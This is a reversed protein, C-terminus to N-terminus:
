HAYNLMFPKLRDLSLAWPMSFDDLCHQLWRLFRFSIQTSHAWSAALPNPTLGNALAKAIDQKRRKLLKNLSALDIIGHDIELRTELIRLLNHTLVILEAQQSKATQSKAWAKTEFFRNKITDFRKEIDWRRRYLFVVLGPPLTQENTIFRYITGTAPDQYTIRRLHYGASSGVHEDCLVGVNRPDNPDWFRYGMSTLVSNSKERTLIYIGRGKKWEQWQPYDVIAQDYILLVKTGVAEGMRLVKGGIRKLTSIEHEEMRGPAPVSLALAKLTHTKMNLAYLHRVARKKDGRKEEHASAGHAHGDLAYLAFSDLEPHEEFLNKQRLIWEDAQRCVCQSVERLMLYRRRSKLAAFFNVVSLSIGTKLVMRQVWERGSVVPHLVREVGGELYHQDTYESCNRTFSSHELAKRM